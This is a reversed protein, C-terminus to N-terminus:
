GEIILGAGILIWGIANEPRNSAILAGVTPFVLTVIAQTVDFAAHTGAIQGRNVIALASAGLALAVTGAWLGWALRRSARTVVMWRSQPGRGPELSPHWGCPLGPTLKRSSGEISPDSAIPRRSTSAVVVGAHQDAPVDCRLVPPM